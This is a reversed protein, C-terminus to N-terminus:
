QAAEKARLMLLDHVTQITPCPRGVLAAVEQAGTQGRAQGAFIASWVLVVAAVLCPASM